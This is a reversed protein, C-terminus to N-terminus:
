IGGGNILMELTSINTLIGDGTFLAQLNILTPICEHNVMFTHNPGPQDAHSIAELGPPYM